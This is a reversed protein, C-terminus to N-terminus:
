APAPAIRELARRTSPDAPYRAVVHLEPDEAAILKAQRFTLPGLDPHDFRKLAPNFGAVDHRAWREPFGPDAASVDAVIEAFRPDGPHRDASARFQALVAWSESEWSKVVTRMPPWGFYLWIMNRREAPLADLGGYIAAEAANHALIDWHRDLLCAPNPALAAVTARLHDGVAPCGEAVPRPAADAEGALSFVHRREAGTLRLTTAVADLVQASAAIARGQELWSYWSVSVGSLLAVEERRLGPTRRRPGGTLGVEEPTLRERRSRLFAGLAARRQAERDDM